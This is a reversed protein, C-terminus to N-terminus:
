WSGIADVIEPAGLILGIGVAISLAKTFKLMGVLSGIGLCAIAIIGTWRAATGTLIDAVYELADSITSVESTGAYAPETLLLSFFTLGAIKPLLSKIRRYIRRKKLAREQHIAEQLLPSMANTM